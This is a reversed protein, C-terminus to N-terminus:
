FYMEKDKSSNPKGQLVKFIWDKTEEAVQELKGPEEFLHGAGSIIKLDNREPFHKYCAKNIRLVEQDLSGVLWLMPCIVEPIYDVAYDLRGGRSIVGSILPKLQAAAAVAITAGTSGGFYFIPLKAVKPNSHLSKSLQILRDAFLSINFEGKEKEQTTTLDFLFTAIRNKNLFQAIFNNRPSFRGSGSGHAFLVLAKSQDPVALEGEVVVDTLRINLIEKM